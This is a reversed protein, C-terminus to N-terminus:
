TPRRGSELFDDFAQDFDFTFDVGAADDAEFAIM